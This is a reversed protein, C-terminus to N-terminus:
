YHPPLEDASGSGANPTLERVQGELKKLMERLMAIDNQQRVVTLSFQQLNEEQFAVRMQLEQIAEDMM